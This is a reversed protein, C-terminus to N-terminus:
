DSNGRTPDHEPANGGRPYEASRHGAGCTLALRLYREHLASVRARTDELSGDNLIVDDAALLRTKRSVQSAMIQAARQPSEHDRAILRDRQMSEPCDVVLVRDVLRGFGTEVLLPVVFMQYPGGATAASALAHRRIRPHLIAELKQKGAPDSFVMSRLRRRDLHGDADLVAPGFAAIIADLAASGPTVLRRAIVDTDIVPVGLRAFQDAVTTKGSAIGGTLGVRFVPHDAV